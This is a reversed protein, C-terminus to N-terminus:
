RFRVPISVKNIESGDKPSYSFAELTGTAPSPTAFTVTASYPGFLGADPSMTETKLQVLIKGAADKLRVQMVNEFVRGQGTVTLPSAVRQNPLPSVITVNASESVIITSPSPSSSPSSIPRTPSPTVPVEEVFTKSGVRCQRPYSETVPFGRAICEGFSNTHAVKQWNFYFCWDDQCSYLYYALAGAVIFLIIISIITIARM